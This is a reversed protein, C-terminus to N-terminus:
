IERSIKRKKKRYKEHKGVYPCVSAQEVQDEGYLKKFLQLLGGHTADGDHLESVMVSRNYPIDKKLYEARQASSKSEFKYIFVYIIISFFAVSLAHVILKYSGKKVNGMSIANEASLGNGGFINTLLSAIGLVTLVAFLVTAYRLFTLYQIMDLGGYEALLKSEDFKLAYPIWNFWGTCKTLDPPNIYERRHYGKRVFYQPFIKRLFVVAIFLAVGVVASIALSPGLGNSVQRSEGLVNNNSM